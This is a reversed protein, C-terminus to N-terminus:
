LSFPHISAEKHDTTDLTRAIITLVTEHFEGNGM